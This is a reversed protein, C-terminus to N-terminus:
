WTNANKWSNSRPIEIKDVSPLRLLHHRISKSPTAHSRISNSKSKYLDSNCWAGASVLNIQRRNIEKPNGWIL